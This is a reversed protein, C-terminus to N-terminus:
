SNRFQSPTMHYERKFLKCFNNIDSFGCHLAIENVPLVTDRLMMGAYKLRLLTLYQKPSYGTLRKFQHSLYHDSIYHKRCLESIKISENYHIDLYQQVAFVRSQCSDSLSHAGLEPHLWCLEVLLGTLLATVMDNAYPAAPDVELMQHLSSLVRDRIPTVDLCHRFLDSHNKLLSLLEPNRIHSDVTPAHFFFCYRYCDRANRLKLHQQELNTLLILSNPGASYSKEGVSLEIEGREVFILEYENQYRISRIPGDIPLAASIMFDTHEM